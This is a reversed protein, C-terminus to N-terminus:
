LLAGQLFHNYEKFFYVTGYPKFFDRAAQADIVADKEGLYVEIRVGRDKLEQLQETPWAFTLLEELSEYSEEATDVRGVPYPAFCSLLFHERYRVPDKVFGQLQMRIFRDSKNCYYAPSFLQMTDIRRENKVADKFAKIAGYSFGAITYDDDRLYPVFFDAEGQLCFGSYFRM